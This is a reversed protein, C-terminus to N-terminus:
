REQLLPPLPCDLADAIARLLEAEKEHLFGDAAVVTAAAFLIKKKVQPAAQNLRDLARDIEDLRCQAIPLPEATGSVPGLARLGETFAKTLAAPDDHGVRALASLVVSSERALPQLNFYQPEPSRAPAFHSRLHRLLLKQLTFEFLSLSEDAEVLQKITRAFANFQDRSLRRLAPLALDVLPLKQRPDIQRLEPELQVVFPELAPQNARVATFQRERVSPESGLLLAYVLACADFPEHAANLLTPPISDRLRGAAAIHAPTITGVQAVANFASVPPTATSARRGGPFPLPIVPPMGPLVVPPRPLPPRATIPERPRSETVAVKPFKGDFKPDLLRIRQELPPHTALLHNWVGAVGESFFLHSAEEANPAGLRSGYVLGGIKKLAGALGEPNRTFQVASSDALFERQRSVASKILRGFFMGISGIVILGLGILPLPNAGKRDRSSHRPSFRVMYYGIIALCVIGHIVGMLRLNLRMDGNLIHSFEHAIVGQLEDRNLITMCGRTVGIAADGTTFGAAFANIGAENDLVYVEPVPTGSAISMEEVVNMLKQEDPDRTQSDLLRGGLSRAVTGGGGSLQAIKYASGTFIIFLTGGASWLFLELNWWAALTGAPQEPLQTSYLWALLLYVSLVTLVTALFFYVVLWRTKARAKDQRAFFDM